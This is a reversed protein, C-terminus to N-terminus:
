IVRLANALDSKRFEIVQSTSDKSVTIGVNGDELKEVLGGNKEIFTKFLPFTPTTIPIGLWKSDCDLIELKIPGDNNIVITMDVNPDILAKNNSSTTNMPM